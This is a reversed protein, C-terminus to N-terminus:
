PVGEFTVVSVEPEGVISIGKLQRAHSLADSAAQRYAEEITANGPWPQSLHIEITVKVRAIAKVSM